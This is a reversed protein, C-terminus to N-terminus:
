TKPTNLMPLVTDLVQSYMAIRGEYLAEASEQLEKVREILIGVKEPAVEYMDQYRPDSYGRLLISFLEKEEKTIGPFASLLKESFNEVFTLLRSLNHTNTRYGTFVRILAICTHEVCQHLLFVTLEQSGKAVSDLAVQWFKKALGYSRSWYTEALKKTPVNRYSPPPTSLPQSNKEYLRVGKEYLSCFFPHAAEIQSNVTPLKHTICTLTIAPSSFQEVMQVMVHDERVEDKATIVLLDFIPHLEESYEQFCSWNRYFSSRIGYCIIKEPIILDTIRRILRNLEDKQTNLLFDLHTLM